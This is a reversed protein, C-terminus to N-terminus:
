TKAFSYNADKTELRSKKLLDDLGLTAWAHSVLFPIMPLAAKVLVWSTGSRSGLRSTKMLRGTM